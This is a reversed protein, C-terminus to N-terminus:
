QGSYLILTVTRPATFHSVASWFIFITRFFHKYFPSTLNVRVAGCVNRAGGNTSRPVLLIFCYLVQAM